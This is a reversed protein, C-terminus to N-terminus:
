DFLGEGVGIFAGSPSTGVQVAPLCLFSSARCDGRIVKLDDVAFQDRVDVARRRFQPQGPVDEIRYCLLQIEPHRVREGANDVPNCLFRPRQVVTEKSEFQDALDVNQFPLREARKSPKVKYCKFQEITLNSPVGDKEAPLCLSDPRNVTLAHEGFQDQVIVNRPAFHPEAINYCMLHATTDAIGEGNKDVPNCLRQARRVRATTTGFQDTLTVDRELFRTGVQRTKYCKYHDSPRDDDRFDPIGDGDTDGFGEDGDELGDGDSDLDQFDPVGDGDTDESGEIADPIDDGDADDDRADPLGDGDTDGEGEVLNPIGDGDCDTVLCPPLEAVDVFAEVIRARRYPEIREPFRAPGDEEFIVEGQISRAGAPVQCRVFARYLGRGVFQDFTAEAGDGEATPRFELDVSTSDPLVVRGSYTAGEVVNQYSASARITLPTAGDAIPPEVSAFCDPLANEVHGLLYSEQLVGGRARVELTWTGPSPSPVQFLRYFPDRRVEPDNEGIVEGEPGRLELFPNWTSVVNRASVFVNLREAGPEVPIEFTESSPPGGAAAGAALPQPLFDPNIVAQVASPTRPLALSEGRFRAFLEAYIAPLEDGAPADFTEGGSESALKKLLKEDAADGVPISFIRVNRQRLDEAVDEPSEGRNNEGDSLLFVTASRDDGVRAFESEALRLADGIATYGGAGLGAIRDKADQTEPIDFTESGGEFPRELSAGQEFSVIGLDGGRGAFLDIWASAAAKAYALRTEAVGRSEPDGAPDAM